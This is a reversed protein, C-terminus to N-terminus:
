FYIIDSVSREKISNGNTTPNNIVMGNFYMTSSGGGDLNYADNVGLSKMFEALEYLSLGESEDTRGDSVVLVYHTEDIFGIATRPNSAMAKGVEESESVTIKGDELIGPGFSFVQWAGNELLEEATIDDENILEYTGDSYIVLDEQGSKSSSRYLVGNRIVYGNEQSGYYDGNVALIADNDSAIESTAATINRGYTDDAFAAKLYEISDAQIDAVYITTDYEYYTSLEISVNGDDYSTETIVPETFIVEAETEESTTEETEENATVSQTTVTSYARPILFTDLVVFATFATLIVAFCACWLYKKDSFKKM